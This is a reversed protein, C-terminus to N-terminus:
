LYARAYYKALPEMQRDVMQQQDLPLIRKQCNPPDLFQRCETLQRRSTLIIPESGPRQQDTVM